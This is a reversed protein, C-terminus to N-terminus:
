NHLIKMINPSAFTFLILILPCLKLKVNKYRFDYVYFALVLSFM